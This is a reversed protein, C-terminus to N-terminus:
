IGLDVDLIDQIAYALHVAEAQEAGYYLWDTYDSEHESYDPTGDMFEESVAHHLLQFIDSCDAGDRCMQALKIGARKCLIRVANECIPTDWTDPGKVFEALEEDSFDDDLDFLEDFTQEDECFWDSCVENPERIFAILGYGQMKLMAKAEEYDYSGTTLDDDSSKQVAYWLKNKM